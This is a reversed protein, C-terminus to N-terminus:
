SLFQINGVLIVKSENSYFTGIDVLGLGTEHEIELSFCAGGVGTNLCNSVESENTWQDTHYDFQIYLSMKDAEFVARKLREGQIQIGHGADRNCRKDEFVLMWPAAKQSVM